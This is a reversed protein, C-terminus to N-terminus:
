SLMARGLPTIRRIVALELPDDCEPSISMPRIVADVLGAAKLAEVCNIGHPDNVRLPFHSREIKRLYDFTLCGNIPARPLVEVSRGQMKAIEARGDDTICIVVAIEAM